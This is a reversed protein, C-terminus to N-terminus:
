FFFILNIREKFFDLIRKEEKSIVRNMPRNKQKLLPHYSICGIIFLFDIGLHNRVILRHPVIRQLDALTNLRIEIFKDRSDSM